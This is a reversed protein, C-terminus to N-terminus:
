LEVKSFITPNAGCFSYAFIINALTYLGKLPSLLHNNIRIESSQLSLDYIGLLKCVGTGSRHLASYSNGLVGLPSIL